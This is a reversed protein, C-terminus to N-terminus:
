ALGKLIKNVRAAKAKDQAETRPTVDKSAGDYAPGCIMTVPAVKVGGLLSTGTRMGSKRTATINARSAM